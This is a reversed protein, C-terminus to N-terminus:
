ASSGFYAGRRRAKAAMALVVKRYTGVVLVAVEGRARLTPLTGNAAPKAEVVTVSWRKVSRM